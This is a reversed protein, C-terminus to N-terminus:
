LQLALDPQQSDVVISSSQKVPSGPQPFGINLDPPLTDQKKNQPNHPVLGRWHSQFQARTLETPILQPFAVSRNSHFGPLGFHVPRAFLAQPPFGHKEPQLQLGVSFPTEERHQRVSQPTERAPNYLSAAAIQMKPSGSSDESKIPAAGLTMWARAATAAASLDDRKASSDLLGNQQNDSKSSNTIKQQNQSKESLMRMMQVPDSLGREQNGCPFFSVGRAQQNHIFDYGSSTVKDNSAVNSAAKGNPLGGAVARNSEPQAHNPNRSVMELLGSTAMPLVHEVQKQSDKAMGNGGSMYLRNLEVQKLANMDGTRALNMHLPNQQQYLTSAMPNAGSVGFLGSVGGAPAIFSRERPSAPFKASATVASPGTMRLGLQVGDQSAKAGQTGNADKRTEETKPLKTILQKPTDKELVSMHTSLPERSAVKREKPKKDVKRSEPLDSLTQQKHKVNEFMLVPTPLPEYEAVWGRGFKFGAPLAQEIRRSAVTWAVPGLAAAFRALSRAYSHDAHLGVAALQKNEGEFISFMSDTRALPENSIDYSARRNEDSLSLRRWLKSPTGKGSVLEDAKEQKNESLFSKGDVPGEINSPAEPATALTANSGNVADGTTALTAGSSFDSGVPEQPQTTKCLSKKIPKRVVFSTKTEQESKLEAETREYDAKLRQFKNKALEQISRAQKFYITEPANYQMANTCLLFVDSELQELYSYQGSALKKRITGFDMPHDIVDLYDPLQFLNRREKIGMEGEKLECVKKKKKKESGISRVDDDDDDEVVGHGNDDDDDDSIKRKKYPKREESSSGASGGLGVRGHSVSDVRGSSHLKVVLKVKKERRREQEEEEEEEEDDGGDGDDEGGDGGGRDEEESEEESSEEFSGVFTTSRRRTSRRLERPAEGRRDRRGAELDARGKRRRRVIKGM